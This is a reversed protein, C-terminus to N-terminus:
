ILGGPLDQGAPGYPQNLQAAILVTQHGVVLLKLLRGLGHVAKLQGCGQPMEEGLLAGV